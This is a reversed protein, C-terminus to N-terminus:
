GVGDEGAAGGHERVDVLAQVLFDGGKGWGSDLNLDHGRRLALVGDPDSAGDEGRQGGELFHPDRLVLVVLGAGADDVALAELRTADPLLVLKPSSRFNCM